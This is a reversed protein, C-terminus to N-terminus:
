GAASANGSRQRHSHRGAMAKWVSRGHMLRPATPRGHRRRARKRAAEANMKAARIRGGWIVERSKTSNMSAIVAHRAPTPLAVLILAQFSRDRRLTSSRVIWPSSISSRVFRSSAIMAAPIMM